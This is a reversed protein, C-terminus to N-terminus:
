KPSEKKTAYQHTREKKEGCAYEPLRALGVTLSITLMVWHKCMLSVVISKVGFIRWFVSTANEYRQGGRRFSM